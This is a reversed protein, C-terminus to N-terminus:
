AANAVLSGVWLAEEGLVSSFARLLYKTDQTLIRLTHQSTVRRQGYHSSAVFELFKTLSHHIDQSDDTAFADAAPDSPPPLETSAIILVPGSPQPPPSVAAM